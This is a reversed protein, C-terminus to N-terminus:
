VDMEGLQFFGNPLGNPLKDPSKGWISTNEALTFEGVFGTTPNTLAKYLYGDVKKYIPVFEVCYVGPETPSFEAEFDASTALSTSWAFGAGVRVSEKVEAGFNFNGGFSETIAVSYGYRITGPARIGQSVQVPTGTVNYPEGTRRFQYIYFSNSNAGNEDASVDAGSGSSTLEQDM